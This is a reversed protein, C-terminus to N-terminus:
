TTSPLAARTSSQTRHFYPQALGARMRSPDGARPRDEPHALARTRVARKGAVRPERHQSAAAVFLLRLRAARRSLGPERRLDRAGQWEPRAAGRARRRRARLDVERR